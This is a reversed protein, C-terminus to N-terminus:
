SCCLCPMHSTFSVLDSAGLVGAAIAKKWSAHKCLVLYKEAHLPITTWSQCLAQRNGRSVVLEQCRLCHVVNPVPDGVLVPKCQVFRFPYTQTNGHVLQQFHPAESRSAGRSRGQLKRVAEPRGHLNEVTGSRTRKLNLSPSFQQQRSLGFLSTLSEDGIVFKAVGLLSNIRHMHHDYIQSERRGGFVSFPHSFPGSRLQLPRFFESCM